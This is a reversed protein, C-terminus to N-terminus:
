KEISHTEYKKLGKTRYEKTKININKIKPIPFEETIKIKKKEVFNDMTNTKNPINMIIKNIHSADTLKNSSIDEFEDTEPTYLGDQNHEKQLIDSKDMIKIYEIVSKVYELHKEKLTDNPYKGKIMEKFFSYLRKRYFKIEKTELSNKNIMPEHTIEQYLNNALYKITIQTIDDNM